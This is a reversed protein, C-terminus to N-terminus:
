RVAIGTITGNYDPANGWKLGIRFATATANPFRIGRTFRPAAFWARWSIAATMGAFAPREFGLRPASKLKVHNQWGADAKLEMLPAGTGICSDFRTVMLELVALRLNM